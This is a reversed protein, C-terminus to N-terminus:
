GAPEEAPDLVENLPATALAQAERELGADEAAGLRTGRTKAHGKSFCTTMLCTTV